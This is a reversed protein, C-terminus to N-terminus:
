PVLREIIWGNEAQIAFEGLQEGEKLKRFRLRDHLRIDNGQWFEIEEPLLLYGGWNEPTPVTQTPEFERMAQQQLDILYQKDKIVKSQDSIYASIRSKLPRKSFYEHSKEREIKVVKGDIRIQRSMVDWYFCLSAQPNQALEEGKRSAYNTFFSFGADTFDKLLVMRSSPKGERTATSLCMANPEKIGPNKRALQFWEDFQKIPDKSVLDKVDFIESPDRYHARINAFDSSM